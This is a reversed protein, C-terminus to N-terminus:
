VRHLSPQVPSGAMMMLFYQESSHWAFKRVVALKLLILHVKGGVLVRKAVEKWTSLQSTVYPHQLYKQCKNCSSACHLVQTSKLCPSISSLSTSQNAKGTQITHLVPCLLLCTIRSFPENHM